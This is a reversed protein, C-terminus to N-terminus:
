STWFILTHALKLDELMGRLRAATAAYTALPDGARATGARARSVEGPAHAIWVLPAGPVPEEITITYGAALAVAIFYAATQGGPASALKSTVARRRAPVNPPDYGYEPMGCVREWDALMETTTRPDAEEILANDRAHLRVWEDALGQLLRYFRSSTDQTWVVGRPLLNRFIRVYDADTATWARDAM